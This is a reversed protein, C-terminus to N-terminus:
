KLGPSSKQRLVRVKVRSTTMLNRMGELSRFHFSNLGDYFSFTWPLPFYENKIILPEVVPENLDMIKSYNLLHGLM